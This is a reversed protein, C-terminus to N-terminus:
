LSFKFERDYELNFDAVGRGNLKIKYHFDKAGPQKQVMLKYQGDSKYPITYEIELKRSNQPRVQM